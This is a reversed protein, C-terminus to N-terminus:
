AAPPCYHFDLHNAPSPYSSAEGGAVVNVFQMPVSVLPLLSFLTFTNAGPTPITWSPLNAKTFTTRVTGRFFATTLALQHISHEPNKGSPSRRVAAAGVASATSFAPRFYPPFMEDVPLQFIM